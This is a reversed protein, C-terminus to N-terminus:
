IKNRKGFYRRKAGYFGGNSINYKKLLVKLQFGKSYQELIELVLDKTIFLKDKGSNLKNTIFQCNNPEYNGKVDIRDITLDDRYGNNMAWEKFNVYENWEECIKIGKAGYQQYKKSKKNLCRQRMHVWTTYLRTYRDGHKICTKKFELFCEKCRKTKAGHHKAIILIKKCIPCRFESHMYNRKSYKKIGVDRIYELM